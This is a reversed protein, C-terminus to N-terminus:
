PFKIRFEWIGDAIYSKKLTVKKTWLLNHSATNCYWRSFLLLKADRREIDMLKNLSHGTIDSAVICKANKMRM